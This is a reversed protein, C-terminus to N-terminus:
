RIFRHGNVEMEGVVVFGLALPSLIELHVQTTQPQIQTESWTCPSPLFVVDDLTLFLPRLYTLLFRLHLISKKLFDAM